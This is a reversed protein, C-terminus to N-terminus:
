SSAPTERHRWGRAPDLALAITIVISGQDNTPRRRDRSTGRGPNRGASLVAEFKAVAAKAEDVQLAFQVNQTASPSGQQITSGTMTGINIAKGVKPVEPEPPSLFGVGFQRMVFILEHDLASTRKTVASDPIGRFVTGRIIAKAQLLFNDLCQATAQRLDKPDLDTIRAVRKLEGVVIGRRSPQGQSRGGKRRGLNRRSSWRRRKPRPGEGLRYSHWLPDDRLARAQAAAILVADLVSKDDVEAAVEKAEKLIGDIAPCDVAKASVDLKEFVQELRKV